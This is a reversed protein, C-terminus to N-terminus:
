PGDERSEAVLEVYKANLRNEKRDTFEIADFWVRSGVSYDVEQNPLLPFYYSSGDAQAKVFGFAKGPRTVLGTVVGEIDRGVFRYNPPRGLRLPRDFIFSRM